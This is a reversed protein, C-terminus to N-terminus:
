LTLINLVVPIYNLTFILGAIVSWKLFNEAPAQDAFANDGNFYNIDTGLAAALLRITYMRPLVKGTEIRQITRIDINCADALEKQTIGKQNRLEAILTGLLPQTMYIFKVLIVWVVESQLRVPIPMTVVNVRCKTLVM